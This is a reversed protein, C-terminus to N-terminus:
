SNILSILEFLNDECGEECDVWEQWATKVESDEKKLEKDTRDLSKSYEVVEGAQKYEYTQILSEIADNNTIDSILELYNKDTCGQYACGLIEDWGNKVEQRDENELRKDILTILRAKNMKDDSNRLIVLDSVVAKRDVWGVLSYLQDKVNFDGSVLEEIRATDVGELDIDKVVNADISGDYNQYLM